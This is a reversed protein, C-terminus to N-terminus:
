RSVFGNMKETWCTKEECILEVEEEVKLLNVRLHEKDKKLSEIEYVLAIVNNCDNLRTRLEENEKRFDDCSEIM